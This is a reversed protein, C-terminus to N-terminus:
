WFEHHQSQRRTPGINHGRRHSGGDDLERPTKWLRESYEASYGLSISGTFNGTAQPAFTASFSVNEEPALTLPISLGSLSFATGSVKAQSITLNENGTNKLSVSQSVSAGVQVSGFNVISPSVSLQGTATATFLFVSLVVLSFGVYTSPSHHSKM